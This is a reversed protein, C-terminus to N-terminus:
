RFEWIHILSLCHVSVPAQYKHALAAVEEMLERSTTYEAHFGIRHSIQRKEDTNFRLYDKEMQAVTGGFNNISDLHTYSVPIGSSEFVGKGEASERRTKEKSLASEEEM